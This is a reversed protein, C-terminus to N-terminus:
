FGCGVLIAVKLQVLEKLIPSVKGPAATYRSMQECLELLKPDHARLRTPLTVHGYRRKARRFVLRTRPGAEQDRVGEARAPRRNAKVTAHAEPSNTSSEKSTRRM